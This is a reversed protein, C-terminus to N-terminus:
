GKFQIKSNRSGTAYTWSLGTGFGGLRPTGNKKLMIANTYEETTYVNFSLFDFDGNAVNINYRDRPKQLRYKIISTPFILDTPNIETTGTITWRVFQRAIPKLLETLEAKENKTFNKASCDVQHKLMLNRIRPNTINMERCITDVDFEAVAVKPATSQKSSIRLIAKSGDYFLINAIVDTKSLGGTDRHPVETTAHISKINSAFPIKNTRMIHTFIDYELTPLQIYNNYASIHDQNQLIITLYEEYADGLKDHIAGFKLNPINYKEYMKNILETNM